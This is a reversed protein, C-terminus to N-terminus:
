EKSKSPKEAKDASVEFLAEYSPSLKLLDQYKEYTLNSPTVNERVGRFDIIVSEDKFKVTM